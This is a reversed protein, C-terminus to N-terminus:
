PASVLTRRVVPVPDTLGRVSVFEAESAGPASAVVENPGALECLRAVLNVDHGFLDGRLDIPTGRHMAARIRWRGAAPEALLQAIRAVAGYVDAGAPACCLVGDGLSKVVRGGYPGLADVTVSHVLEAAARAADDGNEVTFSVFGVLDLMLLAVEVARGPSLEAAAEAGRPTLSFTYGGAREVLVHGSAELELLRALLVSAGSPKGMEALRRSISDGDTPRDVLTLLVDLSTVRPVSGM